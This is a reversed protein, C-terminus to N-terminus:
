CRWKTGGPKRKVEQLEAGAGVAWGLGKSTRRGRARGGPGLTQLVSGEKPEGAEKVMKVPEEALGAGM